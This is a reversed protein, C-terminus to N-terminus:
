CGALRLLIHLTADHHINYKSLTLGDELQRGAFVLRQMDVPTGEKDEVKAKVEEILDNPTVNITLRKGALSKVWIRMGECPPGARVPSARASSSHPPPIRGRLERDARHTDGVANLGTDAVRARKGSARKQAPDAASAAAEKAEDFNWALGEPPRGFRARYCLMTTEVRRARAAHDLDGDADHHLLRPAGLLSACAKAYGRTDLIHEHWVRDILLSPSLITADEDAMAVKLELFQRYAAIAAPVREESLLGRRVLREELTGLDLAQM